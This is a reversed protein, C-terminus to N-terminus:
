QQAVAKRLIGAEYLYSEIRSKVNVDMPTSDLLNYVSNGKDDFEYMKTILDSLQKSLENSLDKGTVKDLVSSSFIEEPKKVPLTDRVVEVKDKISVIDIYVLRSNNYSHATGRSFSGPRVIRVVGSSTTLSLTEYPVHDHGLLYMNFPYKEIDEKTLSTSDLNFEYFKHSALINYSDFDAIEPVDNPYHCGFINVNRKGSRKFTIQTFPDIVRTLFMNGLAVKDFSDLRDYQEDHNGFIAFCRIGADRFKMFEENVKFEYDDPQKAKHWVDGLFICYKVQRKILHNRLLGIKDLMTQPYDDIRSKPTSASLHMDGVVAFVPEDEFVFKRDLLEPVWDKRDKLSEGM